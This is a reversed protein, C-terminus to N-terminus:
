ERNQHHFYFVLSIIKNNEVVEDKAETDITAFDSAKTPSAQIVINDSLKNGGEVSSAEFTGFTLTVLQLPESTAEYKWRPVNCCPSAPKIVRAVSAGESLLANAPEMM